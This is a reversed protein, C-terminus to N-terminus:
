DFGFPPYEDVLLLFSGSLRASWRNYGVLFHHLDQPVRGLIVGVVLAYIAIVLAVNDLYRMVVFHPAVLFIRFFTKLRSRGELQEAVSLRVPYSGEPELNFPPYQDTLLFGYGRVRTTWHLVGTSFRLMGAPYRGTFMIAFWAIITIVLQAVSLFVLVVIHPLVLFIRLLVWWRSQQAPLDAEVQITYNAASEPM